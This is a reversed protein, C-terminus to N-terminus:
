DILGKEINKKLFVIIETSNKLDNIKKMLNESNINNWKKLLTELNKKQYVTFHYMKTLQDYYKPKNLNYADLKSLKKLNNEFTLINDLNEKFLGEIMCKSKIEGMNISIKIVALFEYNVFKYATTYFSFSELDQFTLVDNSYKNVTLVTSRNLNGINVVCPYVKRKCKNEIIKDIFYLTSFKENKKYGIGYNIWIANSKSKSCNNLYILAYSTNQNGKGSIVLWNQNKKDCYIPFLTFKKKLKMKYFNVFIKAEEESSIVRCIRYNIPMM